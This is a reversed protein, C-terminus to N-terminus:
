RKMRPMLPRAAAPPVASPTKLQSTGGASTAAKLSRRSPARTPTGPHTGSPGFGEIRQRAVCRSQSGVDLGADEVGVLHMEHGADSPEIRGDILVDSHGQGKSSPRGAEAM